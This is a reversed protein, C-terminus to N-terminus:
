YFAFSLGGSGLPMELNRIVGRKLRTNISTDDSGVVLVEYSSINKQFLYLVVSECINRGTGTMSM